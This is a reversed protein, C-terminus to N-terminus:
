PGIQEVILKRGALDRLIDFHRDRCLLPLKDEAAVAAVLVDDRPVVCGKRRLQQEMEAAVEWHRAGFARRVSMELVDRVLREEGDDRAGVLLELLVPCTYAAEDLELHSAVRAKARPDGKRRLFEVWVSTDILIM